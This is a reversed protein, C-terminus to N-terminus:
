RGTRQAAEVQSKLSQIEPDDPRLAAARRICRAARDTLGARLLYMGRNAAMSAYMGTIGAVLPQDRDFPRFSYDEPMPARPDPADGPRCLRFLLGQPVREYAAGFQQEIEMTVYVPRAPYADDLIRNILANYASEIMAPDYPLDREFKVLEGRFVEMERRAGAVVDPHNRGIQTLYWSRRFLEKDLVVVDPRMKEVLQFYYSASVFYDWQYSLILAHPAAERLIRTTYDEVLHNGSQDVRPHVLLGMALVVAAAGVAGFAFRKEGLLRLAWAMGYAAWVGTVVYALLYYTEIDHIDYNVAWFVCGAFLLALYLGARRHRRVAIV